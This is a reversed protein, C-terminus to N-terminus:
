AKWTDIRLSLYVLDSHLTEISSKFRAISQRHRRLSLFEHVCKGEAVKIAWSILFFIYLRVPLSVADAPTEKLLNM